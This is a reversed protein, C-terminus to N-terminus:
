FPLDDDDPPRNSTTPTENKSGVDNHNREPEISNSIMKTYWKGEYESIDLRGQITVKTGKKLTDKLFQNPKFHLVNLWFGSKEGNGYTEVFISFKAQEVKGSGYEADKGLRGTMVMVNM